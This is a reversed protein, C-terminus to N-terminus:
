WPCQECDQGRVCIRGVVVVPHAVRGQQICFVWTPLAPLTEMFASVRMGVYRDERMCACSRVSRPSQCPRRVGKVKRIPEDGASDYSDAPEWSSPESPPESAVYSPAASNASNNRRAAVSRPPGEKQPELVDGSIMDVSRRRM